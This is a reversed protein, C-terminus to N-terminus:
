LLLLLLLLLLCWLISPSEVRSTVRLLLEVIIFPLSSKILRSAVREVFLLLLLWLILKVICEIVIVKTFSIKDRSLLLFLARQEVHGLSEHIQRQTVLWSAVLLLLLLLLSWSLCKILDLAFFHANEVWPAGCGWKSWNTSSWRIWLLGLSAVWLLTAKRLSAVWWLIWVHTAWHSAIWLLSAIRRLLISHWRLAVTTSSLCLHGAATHIFTSSHLFPINWLPFSTSTRNLACM